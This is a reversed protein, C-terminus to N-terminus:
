KLRELDVVAITKLPPLTFETANGPNDVDELKADPPADYAAAKLPRYRGLVRVRIGTQAGAAQQRRSGGYSLLFLRASKADGTLYAMVSSTGYLRVLRKDDGLKSRVRAAFESPNAAASEPFDASGLQVTLDVSRDPTKVVKYLLNRRSLLNLVEPLLPSQSDVVAINAMEPLRPAEQAKLFRLM